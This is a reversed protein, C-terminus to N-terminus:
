VEKCSKQTGPFLCSGPFTVCVETVIGAIILAQQFLRFYNPFNTKGPIFHQYLALFIGTVASFGQV